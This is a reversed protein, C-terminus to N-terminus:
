PRTSGGSRFEEIHVQLAEVIDKPRRAYLTPSLEFSQRKRGGLYTDPDDADRLDIRISRADRAKVVSVGTVNAYPIQVVVRSEGRVVQVRDKGLVLRPPAILYSVFWPVGLAAVFAAAGGVLALKLPLAGGSVWWLLVMLVGAVLLLTFAGLLLAAEKRSSPIVPGEVPGLRAADPPGM